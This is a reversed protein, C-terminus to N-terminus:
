FRIKGPNPPIDVQSAVLKCTLLHNKHYAVLVPQISREVSQGNQFDVANQCPKDWCFFDHDTKPAFIPPLVSGIYRYKIMTVKGWNKKSLSQFKEPWFFPHVTYFTYLILFSLFVFLLAAIFFIQSIGMRWPLINYM